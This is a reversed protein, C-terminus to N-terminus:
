HSVDEVLLLSRWMPRALTAAYQKIVLLNDSTTTSAIHITSEPMLLYMKNGKFALRMNLKHENWWDYVDAMFDPTLVERAAVPDSSAVHLANEFDNWELETEQVAGLGLLGSWYSLHAFGARDGDTSIYTEAAHKKPFTAVVLLGRFHEIKESQGKKTKSLEKGLVSLEHFEIPVEGYVYYSDDSQITINDVTLLSSTKLLDSVTGMNDQNNTYLFQRDFTNSFIPVLAMNMERALLKTNTFWARGSVLFVTTWSIALIVVIKGLWGESMQVGSLFLFIFVSLLFLVSVLAFRFNGKVKARRDQTSSLFKPLEGTLVTGLKQLLADHDPLQEKLSTM